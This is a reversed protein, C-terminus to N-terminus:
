DLEWHHSFLHRFDNVKRYDIVRGDVIDDHSSRPDIGHFRYRQSVVKSVLEWSWVSCRYDLSALFLRPEAEQGLM